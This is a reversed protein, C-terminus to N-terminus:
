KSIKEISEFVFEKKKYNLELIISLYRIIISLIAFMGFFCFSLLLMMTTWGAVPHGTVFIVITYALAVLTFFMLCITLSTCVKYAISTHLVLTDMATKERMQRQQKSLGSVKKRDPKYYVTDCKLGCNAYIAKRYHITSSLADVRNIARRSLIRFVETTLNYQINSFYNFIKYFISSFFRMKGEAAAAVIDYGELSRKYVDYILCPEYDFNIYDFEYVFDGIALSRGANMSLEMGQYFSMNLISVVSHEFKDATRKIIEVTRDESDDNVFIIEFKLFREDLQKYLMDMFHEIKEEDNHVYVVASIFNKEKTINRDM